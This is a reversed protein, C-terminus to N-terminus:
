FVMLTLIIRFNETFNKDSSPSNVTTNLAAYAYDEASAVGDPEMQGSSAGGTAAVSHVIGAMPHPMVSLGDEFSHQCQPIAGTTADM